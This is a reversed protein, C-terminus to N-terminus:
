IKGQEINSHKQLKQATSREWSSHPCASYIGFATEVYDSFEIKLHKRGGLQMQPCLIMLIQALSKRSPRFSLGVIYSAKTYQIKNGYGGLLWYNINFM